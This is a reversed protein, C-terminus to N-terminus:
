TPDLPEELELLLEGAFPQGEVVDQEHGGLRLHERVVDRRARPQRALDLERDRDHGRRHVGDGLRPERDRERPDAADADDVAVERDLILDGLDVLDLAALRSHDDLRDREGPVRGYGLRERQHRM